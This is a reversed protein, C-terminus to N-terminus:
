HQLSELLKVLSVLADMAGLSGGKIGIVTGDLEPAQAVTVGFGMQQRLQLQQVGLRRCVAYATAGGTLIVGAIPLQRHLIALTDALATEVIIPNTFIKDPSALIGVGSRAIQDLVQGIGKSDDAHPLRSEDGVPPLCIPEVDYSKAVNNLQQRTRPHLSGCVIVIAGQPIPTWPEVSNRPQCHKAVAQGLGQGGVLIAPTLRHLFLTVVQDLDDQTESDAVILRKGSAILTDLIKHTRPSRVEDLTLLAILRPNGRSAMVAVRSETVPHKPDHRYFSEAIPVNDLYQVGNRTVRGFAPIAPLLGTVAEPWADMVAAIEHGYNGRFASDAKKLLIRTESRLAHACARRVKQYAVEESLSRSETNWVVLDRSLDQPIAPNDSDIFVTITGWLPLFEAGTDCAGALDDAIMALEYPYLTLYGHINRSLSM